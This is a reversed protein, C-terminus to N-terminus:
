KSLWSKKKLSMTAKTVASFYNVVLVDTYWIWSSALAAVVRFSNPTQIVNVNDRNLANFVRGGGLSVRGLLLSVSFICFFLFFIWKWVETGWGLHVVSGPCVAPVVHNLGCRCISSSSRPLRNGVGASAFFFLCFFPPFFEGRTLFRSLTSFQSILFSLFVFPAPSPHRKNWRQGDAGEAPWLLADRITRWVRVCSSTLFGPWFGM